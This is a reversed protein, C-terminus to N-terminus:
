FRVMDEETESNREMESATGAGARVQRVGVDEQSVDGM